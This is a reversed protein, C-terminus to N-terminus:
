AKGNLFSDKGMEKFIFHDVQGKIKVSKQKYSKIADLCIM